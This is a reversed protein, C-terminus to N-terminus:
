VLSLLSCSSNKAIQVSTRFFSIEEQATAVLIGTEEGFRAGFKGM